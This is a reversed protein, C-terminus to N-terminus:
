VGFYQIAEGILKGLLKYGKKSLNVSEKRRLYENFDTIISYIDNIYVDSDNLIEKIMRNYKLLDEKRWGKIEDPIAPITSWFIKVDTNKLKEVIEIINKQFKEASIINNSNDKTEGTQRHRIDELGINLYIIDWDNIELWAQMRERAAETTLNKEIISVVEAREKLFNEVFDIYGRAFEDGIILIDSLMSSKKKNLKSDAYSSIEISDPIKLKKQRQLVEKSQQKEYDLETNFYTETGISAGMQTLLQSTIRRGKKGGNLLNMQNFLFYGKREKIKLVVPDRNLFWNARRIDKSEHIYEGGYVPRSWDIKWNSILINYDCDAYVPNIGTFKIGKNFIKRGDWNLDLNSIGSLLRDKNAEFPQPILIDDYYQVLSAPTNRRTWSIAAKICYSTQHSYPESLFLNKSVLRNFHSIAKENINLVM